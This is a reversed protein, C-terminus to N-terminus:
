AGAAAAPSPGSGPLGAGPLGAGPLGAGQHGAQTDVTAQLTTNMKLLLRQLEEFENTSFAGLAVNLKDVVLPILKEVADRGAPTLHLEVKRRDLGHRARELLGRECLQDVVRTMAGSDHRFQACIDKPNLAIGERLWALIVYQVFSFGHAELLPEMVDLMLAHSRKVLYGISSRAKYTSLHYHQKSM